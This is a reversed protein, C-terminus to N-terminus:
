RRLSEQRTHVPGEVLHKAVSVLISQSPFRRGYVFPLILLLPLLAIWPSWPLRWQSGHRWLFWLTLAAGITGGLVAESVSHEHLVVRSWAIAAALLIGLAAGWARWVAGGRGVLLAFLSPWLMAAMASHGSLGTFNLGPLSLGWMMFALKSVIVLAAVAAVLLLWRWVLGRTSVSMSLWLTVVCVCPIIVASDGLATGQIWLDNASITM